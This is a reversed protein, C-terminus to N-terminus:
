KSTSSTNLHVLFQGLRDPTETRIIVRALANNIYGNPHGYSRRVVACGESLPTYLLREANFEFEVTPNKVGEELLIEIEKLDVESFIIRGQENQWAFLIRSISGVSSEHQGSIGFLLSGQISGQSRSVQERLIQTVVLPHEGFLSKEQMENALAEREAKFVRLLIEDGRRKFGAVDLFGAKWIAGRSVKNVILRDKSTILGRTVSNNDPLPYADRINASNGPVIRRELDM